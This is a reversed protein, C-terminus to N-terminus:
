RSLASKLFVLFVPAGIFATVVGVPLATSFIGFAARAALDALVLFAGGCLACAPLLLRHDPGLVLRVAHPVILGVFGVLGTYAVSVAVGLSAAVVVNRRVRDVDVGLSAAEEDGLTLLNLDRAWYMSAGISLVVIAAVVGIEAAATAEVNLSGVLYFLLEHAKQPALITRVFTIVSGAFANFVVGTLLLVYTSAEGGPTWRGVALLLAVAGLAGAFAATPVGLGALTASTAGFAFVLTGGLAAGGSVGLIYPDALPNRLLAQFVAGAVGLAAGVLLGFLVRPLRAEFVILQEAQSLSGTLIGSITQMAGLDSSGWALGMLAAAIATVVCGALATAM